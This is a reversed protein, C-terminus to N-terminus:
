KTTTVKATSVAKKFQNIAPTKWQTPDCLLLSGVLQNDKTRVFKATGRTPTTGVRQWPANTYARLNATFSTGQNSIDLVQYGQAELLQRVSTVLAKNSKAIEDKRLPEKTAFIVFKHRRLRPQISYLSANVRKPSKATKPLTIHLRGGFISTATSKTQFQDIQGVRAEGYGPSTLPLLIAGLLALGLSRTAHSTPQFRPGSPFPFTRM